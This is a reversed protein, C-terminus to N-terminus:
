VIREKVSPPIPPRHLVAAQEELSAEALQKLARSAASANERDQYWRNRGSPHPLTLFRLVDGGVSVKEWLVWPARLKRASALERPGLVARWVDTGLLVVTRYKGQVIYEMLRSRGWRLRAAYGKGGVQEHHDLLDVRDFARLYDRETFAPGLMKLLRWGTCGEPRPYLAFKPEPSLPNHLGVLLPRPSVLRTTM